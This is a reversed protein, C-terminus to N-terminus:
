ILCFYIFFYLSNFLDFYNINRLKIIIEIKKKNNMLDLKIKQLKITETNLIPYLPHIIINYKIPFSIYKYNVDQTNYITKIKGILGHLKINTDVVNINLTKWEVNFNTVSIETSEGNLLIKFINYNLKNPDIGSSKITEQNNSDLIYYLKKRIFIGTKIKHVLKMQGLGNGVLYHPLPYSLVTSDTDSM